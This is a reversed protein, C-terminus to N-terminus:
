LIFISLINLKLHFYIKEVKIYRLLILMQAMLIKLLAM